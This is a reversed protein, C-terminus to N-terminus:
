HLLLLLPLLLLGLAPGPSAAAPGGSRSVRRGNRPQVPRFTNVMPRGSSFALQSFASLQQRSLPVAKEFLTWVVAQACDPTTLSGDYRFYRSMDAPAPLFMQLSIGRVTTKNSPRPIRRLAKILADFKKNASNSEQFFFGLVAVGAPESVARSLSSYQEKIHVLHMEMPYREGDITHESGPGGDGGWHFHLQLAKYTGPLNGGKIQMGAPLDMQATHGNNSLNGQFAGQYGVLHLPTLRQDAVVNGTVINVPSQSRGGCQPFIVGWEDPGSCSSNCSVQSQYCWDAGSVMELFSVFLFIWM